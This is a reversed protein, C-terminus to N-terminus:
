EVFDQWVAEGRIIQSVQFYRDLTLSQLEGQTLEGTKVRNLNDLSTQCEYHFDEDTVEIFEQNCRQYQEVAADFDKQLVLMNGPLAMLWYEHPLYTQLGQALSSALEYNEEEILADIILIIEGLLEQRWEYHHSEWFKFELLNAVQTWDQRQLAAKLVFQQIQHQTEDQWGIKEEQWSSTLEVYTKLKELPLERWPLVEFWLQYLNLMWSWKSNVLEYIEVTKTIDTVAYDNGIQILLPAILEEKEWPLQYINENSILQTFLVLATDYDEQDFYAKALQFLQEGNQEKTKFSLENGDELSRTFLAQEKDLWVKAKDLKDEKIYFSTLDHNITVWPNIEFWQEKFSQLVAPDKIDLLQSAYISSDFQYISIFKQKSKEDLELSSEYIKRHWHFYPFLDFARQANGVSILYDTKFYLFALSIILLILFYYIFKFASFFIHDNFDIKKDKIILSFLVLTLSFIGIFAWDFDFLVDTYIAAGGLFIAVQWSWKKNKTNQWSLYLLYFMLAIFLGGGVVGMEALVELYANHAHASGGFPNLHYRPAALGFTGPGSGLWFNDGIIGIAWSWYKPRSETSISKCLQRELRPVPCAFDPKIYTIISFFVNSLLILLFVGGLIKFLISSQKDKFFTNKQLYKYIFLFQMLGVTVAVRGFSILLALTFITPLWCWCNSQTKKVYESAVWWSLPIILLLLAALHNHGYTAHLLNLGPLLNALNPYLQFGISILLIVFSILLLSKIVQQTSILSKKVLLFFWFVLSSFIFRTVSYLSLPLNSSFTFSAGLGVFVMLWLAMLWKYNALKSWELESSFLLLFLSIGGMLLYSIYSEGLLFLLLWSILFGLSFFTQKITLPM